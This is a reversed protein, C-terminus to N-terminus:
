FQCVVQVKGTVERDKRSSCFDIKEHCSLCFENNGYKFNILITVHLIITM